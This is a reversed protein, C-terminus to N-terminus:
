WHVADYPYYKQTQLTSDDINNIKVLVAVEFAWYGFYKNLKNLHNEYWYSDSHGKYWIKDLYYKIDDATAIDISKAYPHKQIVDNYSIEWDPQKYRILKSLLKDNAGDRKLVKTIRMFDTLEVDCLIALCIAWIMQDYDGYGDDFIFSEEFATIYELVSAKVVEKSAGASYQAIAKEYYYSKILGKLRIIAESDTSDNITKKLRIIAKDLDILNEKIKNNLKDRM